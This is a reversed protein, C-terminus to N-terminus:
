QTSTRKILVIAQQDAYVIQWRRDSSLIMAVPTHLPVFVWRIDWSDLLARWDPQCNNIRFYDEVLVPGYMDFRTDIFVKVAPYLYFLMLDGFQPNNFVRGVPMHQKLYQIAAVPPQFAASSQPLQPRVVDFTILMEGIIALTILLSAWLLNNPHIIKKLHDEVLDIITKRELEKSILAKEEWLLLRWAGFILLVAFPILRYATIGLVMGVVMLVVGASGLFRLGTKRSRWVTLFVCILCLAIAPYLELHSLDANSLSRLEIIHKNIPSFFLHPLYSWLGIGWPNILSSLVCTAAILLCAQGKQNEKSNINGRVLSGTLGVLLLLMIGLVFGSHLNCWLITTTVFFLLNPFIRRDKELWRCLRELWLALFLYSFIEPRAFFHLSAAMTGLTVLFLVLMLPLPSQSLIRLPLLIFAVSIIAVVLILIGQLGMFKYIQFMVIESLWQYSIPHVAFLPATYSFPDQLPFSQHEMIWRGVALLFCTDPDHLAVGAVYGGTILVFGLFLMVLFRAAWVAQITQSRLLAQGLHDLKGPM